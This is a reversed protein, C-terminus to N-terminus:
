GAASAGAARRCTSSAGRPPRCSHRSSSRPPLTGHVECAAWNGPTATTTAASAISVASGTMGALDLTALQSCAMVPMVAGLRNAPNARGTAGAASARSVAAGGHAATASASGAFGVSALVVATLAIWSRIRQLGAMQPRAAGLTSRIMTMCRQRQRGPRSRWWGNSSSSRPGAPHGCWRARWSSM